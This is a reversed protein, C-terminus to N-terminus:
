AQDDDMMDSYKRYRRHNWCLKQMLVKNVVVVYFM